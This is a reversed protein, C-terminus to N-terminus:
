SAKARKKKPTTESPLPGWFQEMTIEFAAVIKDLTKQRPTVANDDTAEWQYAAPYTVGVKDALEHQTMGRFERWAAIREPVGM